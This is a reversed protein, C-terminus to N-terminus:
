KVSAEIAELGKIVRFSGGCLGTLTKFRDEQSAFSRAQEATEYKQPSFFVVNVSFGDKNRKSIGSKVALKPTSEERVAKLAGAYDKSTFYYFSPKPPQFAAHQNPYYEQLISWDDELVKPPEGAALRERNDEKFEVKAKKLFKNWKDETEWKSTSSTARRMVGWSGSLIFVTDVRQVMAAAAPRCWNRMGGGYKEYGKEPELVGDALQKWALSLRTGGKGVTKIGYDTDKMNASIANLPKLWEEVRATNERTAPVLQPFLMVTGGRDFVALNFLTTSPFGEIIKALEGKIVQYGRLGGVEDRIMYATSDLAIFVKEGKSKVGFVNIEPMTFGISNAGDLGGGVTAGIGGNIGSIEPVKIDPMNRNVKQKVVIRQRMRPKRQRKEIKVPVQLKKQPMKPRSVQKSEFNQEGKTIVTVAVFTGAILILILHLVISVVAASSKAHSTFFRKKRKDMGYM